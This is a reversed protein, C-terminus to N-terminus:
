SIKRRPSIKKSETRMKTMPTEKWTAKGKGSGETLRVAFKVRFQDLTEVGVGSSRVGFKQAIKWKQIVGQPQVWNECVSLKSRSSLFTNM